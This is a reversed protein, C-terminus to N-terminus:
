SCTPSSVAALKVFIQGEEDFAYGGSITTGTTTATIGKVSTCINTQDSELSSLRGKISDVDTAQQANQILAYSAAGAAFIAMGIGFMTMTDGGFLDQRDAAESTFSGAVDQNGNETDYDNSSVRQDLVKIKTNQKGQNSSYHQYPQQVSQSYQYPQQVNNSYILGQRRNIDQNSNVNNSEVSSSVPCVGITFSVWVLGSIVKLHQM